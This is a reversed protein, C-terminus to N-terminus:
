CRWWNFGEHALSEFGGAQKAASAQNKKTKRPQVENDQDGLRWGFPREQRGHM